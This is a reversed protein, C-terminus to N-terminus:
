RKGKGVIRKKEATVRGRKRENGRGKENGKEKGKEKGKGKENWKGKGKGKGGRIDKIETGVGPPPSFKICGKHCAIVTTM